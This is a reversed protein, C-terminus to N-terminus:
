AISFIFFYVARVMFFNGAHTQTLSFYYPSYDSSGIQGDIPIPVKAGARLKFREEESNESYIFLVAGAPFNRKLTIAEKLDACDMNNTIDVKFAQENGSRSQVWIFM